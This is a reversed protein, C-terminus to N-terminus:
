VFLPPFRDTGTKRVVQGESRALQSLKGQENLLLKNTSVRSDSQMSFMRQQQPQKLGQCMLHPGPSAQSPNWYLSAVTKAAFKLRKKRRWQCFNQSIKGPKLIRLSKWPTVGIDLVQIGLKTAVQEMRKDLTLLQLSYMKACQLFYADYAYINQETAIKLSAHIDVNVLRVQILGTVQEAKLADTKIQWVFFLSCCQRCVVIKQHWHWSINIKRQQAVCDRLYLNILSQYPVGTEESLTKFYELVDESLRMTVPKKLKSAYPNKRSKMKSLDYEVKMNVVRISSASRLPQKARLYSVFSRERKVSATVYLFFEPTIALGSCWFDIKRIWLEGFWLIPHRLWWLFCETGRWLFRRTEEPEVRGESWGM